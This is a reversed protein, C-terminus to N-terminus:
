AGYSPSPRRLQGKYTAPGESRGLSFCRAPVSRRGRPGLLGSRLTTTGARPAPGSGTGNGPGGHRARMKCPQAPPRRRMPPYRFAGSGTDRRPHRARDDPYRPAGSGPRRARGCCGPPGCVSRRGRPGLLGSRLTTTGARPAPGSGTGNGPGGHRARMKCPQAPPRRRM